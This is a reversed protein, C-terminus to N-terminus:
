GFREDTDASTGAAKTTSPWRALALIVCAPFLSTPIPPHLLYMWQWKALVHYGVITLVLDFALAALVYRRSFGAKTLLQSLVWLFFGYFAVGAVAMFPNFSGIGIANV